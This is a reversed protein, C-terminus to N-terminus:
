KVATAKELLIEYSYGYGFDLDIALIGEIIVTNGVIFKENSTATLDYKGEHETGDQIHVWNREMIASNFRTVKGQVQVTKGDYAGPNSYLEAISITGETGSIKIDAKEDVVVSGPTLEQMGQHMSAHDQDMPAKGQDMSTNGQNMAANESIIEDLFLVEEFTRDLDKSYFGTMLLGGKYKYTEGPNAVMSSAAIWHESDSGRVLMYTYSGVQEVELVKVTNYGDTSSNSCAFTFLAIAIFLIQRM